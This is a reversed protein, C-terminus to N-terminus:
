PTSAHHDAGQTPTEQASRNTGHPVEIGGLRLFLRSRRDIQLPDGELSALL